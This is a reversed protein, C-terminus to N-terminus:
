QLEKNDPGDKEVRSNKIEKLILDLRNIMKEDNRLHSQLKRELSIFGLIVFVMFFLFVIVINIAEQSHFSWNQVKAIRIFFCAM